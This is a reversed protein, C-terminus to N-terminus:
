FPEVDSQEEPPDQSNAQGGSDRDRRPMFRVNDCLIETKQHKQGEAEWSRTCLRGEVLVPSGKTLYKDTVEARKGFVVADIFLTEEKTENGSKYKTTTALRLTVVPTGGQTYRMDPDKTLNGILIVKNFM